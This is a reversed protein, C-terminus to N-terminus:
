IPPRFVETTRRVFPPSSLGSDDPQDHVVTTSPPMQPVAAVGQACACPCAAVGECCDPASAPHDHAPGDTTPATNAFGGAGEHSHCHPAGASAVAAAHVSALAPGTMLAPVALQWLLAVTLVLRMRPRWMRM